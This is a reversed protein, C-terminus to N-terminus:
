KPDHPSDFRRRERAQDELEKGVEPQHDGVLQLCHGKIRLPVGVEGRDRSGVHGAANHDGLASIRALRKPTETSAKILRSTL